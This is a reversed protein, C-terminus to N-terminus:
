HGRSANLTTLSSEIAAKVAPTIATFGGILPENPLWATRKGFEKALEPSVSRFAKM